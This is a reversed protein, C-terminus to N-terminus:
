QDNYILHCSSSARVVILHRQHLWYSRESEHGVYVFLIYPATQVLLGASGLQFVEGRRGVVM